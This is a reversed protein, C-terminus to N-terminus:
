QRTTWLGDGALTMAVPWRMRGGVDGGGAVMAAAVEKKGVGLM